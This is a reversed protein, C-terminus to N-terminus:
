QVKVLGSKILAQLIKPHSIAHQFEATTEESTGNVVIQKGNPQIIDHRIRSHKVLTWDCFKCTVTEEGGYSWIGLVHGNPCVVQKLQETIEAEFRTKCVHCYFSHKVNAM